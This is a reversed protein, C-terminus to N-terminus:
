IVYSMSKRRTGLSGTHKSLSDRIHCCMLAEPVVPTYSSPSWTILAVRDFKSLTCLIVTWWLRRRRAQLLTCANARGPEQFFIHSSSTREKLIHREVCRECVVSVDVRELIFHSLYIKVFFYTRENMSPRLDISHNHSYLVHVLGYMGSISYIEHFSSLHLGM